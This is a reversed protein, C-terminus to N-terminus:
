LVSPVHGGSPRSQLGPAPAGPSFLPADRGRGREWPCCHCSGSGSSGSSMEGRLAGLPGPCAPPSCWLAEGRGGLGARSRACPPAESGGWRPEPLSRRQGWPLGKPAFCGCCKLAVSLGGGRGGVGEPGGKSCGRPDPIHLGRRAASRGGSGGEPQKTDRHALANDALCPGPPTLGLDRLMEGADEGHLGPPGGAGCVRDWPPFWGTAAAGPYWPMVGLVPPAVAGEEEAGFLNQPASDKDRSHLLHRPLPFGQPLPPGVESNPM